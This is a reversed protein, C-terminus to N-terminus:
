IQSKLPRSNLFGGSNSIHKLKINVERECLFKNVRIFKDLQRITRKSDIEDAGAYHSM